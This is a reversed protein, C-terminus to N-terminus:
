DINKKGFYTRFDFIQKIKKKYNLFKSLFYKRISISIIINEKFM